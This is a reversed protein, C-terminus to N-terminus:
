DLFTGLPSLGNMRNFRDDVVANLNALKVWESVDSV